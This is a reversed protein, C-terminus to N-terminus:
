GWNNLVMLLDNVNVIGDGSPSPAIDSPCSQPSAPCPGWTNIVGLLDNVNVLGDGTIDGLVPAPIPNFVYVAGSYLGNEHHAWSGIVPIGDEYHIEDGFNHAFNDSPMLQHHLTWSGGYESADRRYLYTIGNSGAHNAGVLLVDGQLAVEAGFSDNDLSNPDLMAEQTWKNSGADRYVYALDPGAADPIGMAVRDGDLCVNRIAALSAPPPTIITGAPIWRAPSGGDNTFLHVHLNSNSFGGTTVVIRAGDFDVATVFDGNLELETQHVWVGDSDRGYVFAQNYGAIVATDHLLAMHQGFRKTDPDNALLQQQQVWNAPSGPSGPAGERTFVYVRGVLTTGNLEAFPAGVLLTDGDMALAEGFLDGFEAEGPQFDSFVRAQENWQGSSNRTFVYFSGPLSNTYHQSAGIILTDGGRDIAIGFHDAAMGDSAILKQAESVTPVQGLSTGTGLLAAVGCLRLANKHIVRYAQVFTSTKKSRNAM